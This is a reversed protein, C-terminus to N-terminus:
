LQKPEWRFLHRYLSIKGGKTALEKRISQVKNESPSKHASLDVSTM